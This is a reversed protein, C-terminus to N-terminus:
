RRADEINFSSWEAKIRSYTKMTKLDNLENM